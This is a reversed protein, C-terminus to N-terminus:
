NGKEFDIKQNSHSTNKDEELNPFGGPWFPYNSSSGRIGESFLGPARNLSM